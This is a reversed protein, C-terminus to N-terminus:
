PSRTTSPTPTAARPGCRSAAAPSTTRRQARCPRLPPGRAAAAAAGAGGVAPRLRDPRGRQARPRRLAPRVAPVAPRGLRQEDGDLLAAFAPLPLWINELLCPAGDLSRVRVLHLVAQGPAQGLRRLVDAAPVAAKISVIASVPVSGHESGFRFFRLMSAGSLGVRVFTGRGHVREILGEDVLEQLARRMTGLAVENDRALAQEAPLAVGPVWEGAFIRQRLAQALVAYRSRGHDDAAGKVLMLTTPM